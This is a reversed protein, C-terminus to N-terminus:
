KKKSETKRRGEQSGEKRVEKRGEKKKGEGTREEWEKRNVVLM